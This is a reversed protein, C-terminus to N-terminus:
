YYYGYSRSSRVYQFSDPFVGQITDDGVVQVPTSERGLYANILNQLAAMEEKKEATVTKILQNKDIRKVRFEGESIEVVDSTDIATLKSRIISAYRHIIHMKKLIAIANIDIEAGSQDVIEYDDAIKFNTFILSNLAGISARIWFSVAAISLDSPDGLDFM